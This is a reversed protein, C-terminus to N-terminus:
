CGIEIVTFAPMKPTTSPQEQISSADGKIVYGFINGDAGGSLAYHDDFSVALHTVVGEETDHSGRTWYDELSGFVQSDNYQYIRIFGNKL